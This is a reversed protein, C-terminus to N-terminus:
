LRSISSQMNHFDTVESSRKRAPLSRIAGCYLLIQDSTSKLVVYMLKAESAYVINMTDPLFVQGADIQNSAVFDLPPTVGIVGGSV